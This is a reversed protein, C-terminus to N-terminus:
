LYDDKWESSWDLHVFDEPNGIITGPHAKLNALKSKKQVLVIKVRKGGREIEIPIGTKIVQDVIKYLDGRLKTLSIPM